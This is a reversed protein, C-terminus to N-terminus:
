VGVCVLVGKQGPLGCELWVAAVVDDELDDRRKVRLDDHTYVAVRAIGLQPNNICSDLHLSYSSLQLTKM